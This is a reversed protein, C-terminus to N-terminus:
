RFFALKSYTEGYCGGYYISIFLLWNTMLMTMIERLQERKGKFIWQSLCCSVRLYIKQETLKPPPSNLKESDIEIRIERMWIQNIYEEDETFNSINEGWLRNSTSMWKEKKRWHNEKLELKQFAMLPMWLM